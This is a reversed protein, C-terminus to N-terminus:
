QQQEADKEITPDNENKDKLKFRVERCKANVTDRFKKESPSSGSEPYATFALGKFLFHFDTLFSYLIFRVTQLTWSFAISSSTQKM